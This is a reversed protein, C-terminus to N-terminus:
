LSQADSLELSSLLLSSSPSVQHLSREWYTKQSAMGPMQFFDLAMGGGAVLVLLGWLIHHHYYQSWGGQIFAFDMGLGLSLLVVSFFWIIGSATRNLYFRGGPYSPLYLAAM